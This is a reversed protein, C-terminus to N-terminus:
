TAWLDRRGGSITRIREVVDDVHGDVIVKPWVEAIRGDPDVIFTSRAATMGLVARAGYAEIITRSTDSIMPFTLGFKEIFRHQIEPGDASVGVVLANLSELV